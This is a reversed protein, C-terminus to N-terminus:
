KLDITTPLVELVCIRHPHNGVVPHGMAGSAFGFAQRGKCFLLKRRSARGDDGPSARDPYRRGRAFILISIVTMLSITINRIASAHRLSMHSFRAYITFMLIGMGLGLYGGYVYVLVELQFFLWMWRSGDFNLHRKHQAKTWPGVSFSLTAFLLLWPNIKQFSVRGTYTYIFLTSGLIGGLAALL